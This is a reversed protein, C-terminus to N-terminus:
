HQKMIEPNTSIYSKTLVNAMVVKYPSLIGIYPRCSTRSRTLPGFFDINSQIYTFVNTVYLYLYTFLYM